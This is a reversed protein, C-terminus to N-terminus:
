AVPRGSSPPHRESIEQRPHPVDDMQPRARPRGADARRRGCNPGPAAPGPPPQQDQRPRSDTTLRATQAARPPTVRRPGRCVRRSAVVGFGRGDLRRHRRARDACARRPCRRALRSVACGIPTTGAILVTQLSLVRGHMEAKGEVQVIATTSTLYLISAMGVLFAAPVAVGVAPVVALLLMTVGLAAAGIIIHGMRVMNRNAVILGSAVAGASYTSYLVTFMHGLKRAWRHCVVAVHRRLQIVADRNRGAHHFQDLPDADLQVYRMGERVEGKQRPLRPRRYLEAPRMIYLCLLVALYSMADIAFCWGYGTTVVLLGALAPGFIRSVNVVTSYLVVANPIDEAPVM